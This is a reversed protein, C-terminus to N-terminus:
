PQEGKTRPATSPFAAESIPNTRRRAIRQTARESALRERRFHRVLEDHKPDYAVPPEPAARKRRGALWVWVAAVARIM